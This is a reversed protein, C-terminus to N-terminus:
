QKKLFEVSKIISELELMLDRKEKSPSYCFGELVLIRNNEKDIIAFNIFPGSMFDNKLDWTGKTEYTEKTDLKTKFLYPSYSQETIMSTNSETGCIYLNGISDRMKTINAISNKNKTITSIPVQYILLSTNGSIVEKKLWIFKNKNLIYSYSSPINISINFKDVFNKPNLIGKNTTRQSEAIEGNKIVKIIEIYNKEIISDIEFNTKGIIHFVNQPSAYQNKQIEFCNENDKKIVIIARNDTVFGELLKTSFQNITFLPEEQTLGLVPSAFKNRITDGVESNWLQDDIVVSITNLKGSTKKNLTDSKKSCSLFLFLVALFQIQNMSIQNHFELNLLM